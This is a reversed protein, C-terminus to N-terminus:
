SKKKRKGAKELEEIEKRILDTEEVPELEEKAGLSELEKAIADVESEAPESVGAPEAEVQKVGVTGAKADQAAVGEFEIKGKGLEELRERSLISLKAQYITELAQARSRVPIPSTVEGRSILKISQDIKKIVFPIRARKAFVYGVILLFAAGGSGGVAFLTVMLPDLVAVNFSGMSMNGTNGANDVAYVRWYWLGNALGFFPTYHTLNWYPELIMQESNFATSRDIEIVYHSVGSLLDSSPDWILTPKDGVSSGEPPNAPAMVPASPGHSDYIITSNVPGAIGVTNNAKFYIIRNGDNGSSLTWNYLSTQYPSWSYNLNDNSFGAYSLSTGAASLGISTTNVYRSLQAPTANVATTRGYLFLRLDSPRSKAPHVITIGVDDWYTYFSGTGGSQTVANYRMTIRYTGNGGQTIYNNLDVSVLIWQSTPTTFNRSWVQCITNNPLKLRASLYSGIARTVTPCYYRFTLSTSNPAEGKFTGNYFFNQWM